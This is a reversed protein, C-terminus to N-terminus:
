WSAGRPLSVDFENLFWDDSTAQGRTKAELNAPQAGHLRLLIAKWRGLVERSPEANDQNEALYRQQELCLQDFRAPLHLLKLRRDNFPLACPKPDLPVHNFYPLFAM